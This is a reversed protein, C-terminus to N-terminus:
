SEKEKEDSPEDAGDEADVKPEATPTATPAKKPAEARPQKPLKSWSVVLWDAPRPKPKVGKPLGSSLMKLLAPLNEHERLQRRLSADVEARTLVLHTHHSGPGPNIWRGDVKALAALDNFVSLEQAEDGLVKLSPKLWLDLVGALEAAAALDGGVVGDSASGSGVVSVGDENLTPVQHVWAPEGANLTACASASLLILTAGLAGQLTFNM